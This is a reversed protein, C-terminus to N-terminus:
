ALAGVLGNNGFSWRRSNRQICITPSTTHAPKARNPKGAFMGEHWDAEEPGRRM